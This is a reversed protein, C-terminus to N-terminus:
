QESALDIIMLLHKCTLLLRQLPPCLEEWEQSKRFFRPYLKENKALARINANIESELDILAKCFDDIEEKTM